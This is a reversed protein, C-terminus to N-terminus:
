RTILVQLIKSFIFDLGGLFLAVLVSFIIVAITLRLTQARTPWNVRKLEVRVEKLYTITGGLIGLM